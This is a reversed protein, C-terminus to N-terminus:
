PQWCRRWGEPRSGTKIIRRTAADPQLQETIWKGASEARRRALATNFALSGDASAMGYIELSTLTALTDKLIPALTNQMRSLETSNDGLNLDIDHLNIAFQLRAVGEGKVVKPRIVFEPEIWSLKLSKKVPILTVPNTIDAVEVTDISSCECCGDSSVVAIIRGNDAEAPLEIEKRYPLLLTDKIKRCSRAEAAYPDTYGELKRRRENKKEYIPRDLVYPRYTDAVTDNILLQPTIILRSRKSFRSNPICLTADATVRNNSDPSLICPSPTVTIGSDTAKQAACGMLLKGSLALCIIYFM